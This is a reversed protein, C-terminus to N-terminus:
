RIFGEVNIAKMLAESYPKSYKRKEEYMDQDALKLLEFVSENKSRLVCGISVSVKKMIDEDDCDDYIANMVEDIEDKTTSEFIVIFEDGGIRASVTGVPSQRKIVSALSKLLYDGRDHGIYDNNTKLGNLDLSLIGLNPYSNSDYEKMLGEIYNRNHLGTMDDFNSLRNLERLLEVVQSEDYLLVMYGFAEMGELRFKKKKMHYHKKDIDSLEKGISISSHFVISKGLLKILENLSLALVEAEVMRFEELLLPSVEVINENHDTLIYMERMNSLIKVRGSTKLNFLMDNQYIVKYLNNVLIVMAIYVIDYPIKFAIQIISM